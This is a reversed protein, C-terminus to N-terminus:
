EEVLHYHDADEARYDWIEVPFNSPIRGDFALLLIYYMRHCIPTIWETEAVCLIRTRFAGVGMEPEDCEYVKGPVFRM